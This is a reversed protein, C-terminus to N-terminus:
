LPSLSLSLSSRVQYEHPQLKGDRAKKALAKSEASISALGKAGINRIIPTILGTPTAVALSIDAKSYQRVSEGMFGVNAEPVDALACAVAKIVFDNVSLKGGKEKEALAANFVERLKLVKDMTIDVTMYYHPVAQKSETMRSAITRRMNSLPVDVYDAAGAPQGGAQAGAAPAKYSEVDERVIRGEPGSGRVKALPIGRELAIKKAVPSAFIRDGKPLEGKYPQTEPAPKSAPAKPEPEPKQQQKQEDAKPPTDEKPAPPQESSSEAALADAGSLDDGPEGVIAIPAGVQINKAGDSAQAPAAGM